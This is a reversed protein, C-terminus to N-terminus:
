ATISFSCNGVNINSVIHGNVIVGQDAQMSAPSDWFLSDGNPVAPYCVSWCFYNEMGVVHDLEYRRVNINMSAVSNQTVHVDREVVFESPVTTISITDGNNAPIGEHPNTLEISQAFTLASVFVLGASIFSKLNM